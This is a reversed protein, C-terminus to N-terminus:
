LDKETKSITNKDMDKRGRLWYIYAKLAALEEKSLHKEYNPMNIKQRSLFFQALRSKEFRQTIGKLIWEELEQDNHVLEDFDKSDWPPIYGKLSGPNPTPSKGGPGHCGFCGEELAEQRGKRALSDSIKEALGVTKVYTVLDELEQDSVKGRFSPMRILAEKREDIEEADDRLRKPMGDLIWERIEQINNAYMMLTGGKWSPVHKDVSGPNRIGRTGEPGHCAFCGSKQATAQGRAFSSYLPAKWWHWLFYGGTTSVLFILFFIIIRRQM